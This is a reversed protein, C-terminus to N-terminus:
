SFVKALQAEITKTVERIYKEEYASRWLSLFEAELETREKPPSLPQLRIAGYEKFFTIHGEVPEPLGNLEYGKIVLLPIDAIIVIPFRPMLDFAEPPPIDPDGIKVAPYFEEPPLEFLTRLVWFAGPGNHSAAIIEELAKEKGLSILENVVVMMDNPDYAEVPTNLVKNLLSNMTNTQFILHIVCVSYNWNVHWENEASGCFKISSNLCNSCCGAM